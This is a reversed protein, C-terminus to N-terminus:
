MRFFHHTSQYRQRSYPLLTERTFLDIRGSADVERIAEAASIGAIGAGIIVYRKSM